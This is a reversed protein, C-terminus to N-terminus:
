LNNRCFEIVNGGALREVVSASYRKDLLELMRDHISSREDFGEPYMGDTGDIDFGFGLSNEGFNELAYDVHRLIDEPTCVLNETLFPPYLNLGIVGGRAVIKAAMDKTLNRPSPCVDRFNSHTALLPYPTLELLDYFARDSMHSVDLIIGMESARRALARGEATLGYDEKDWASASLENGDWALGLVRLGARYLTLLEESDAFLGAGGEISLLTSRRETEIAYNLDHCDAVSVLKLRERESLYVDLLHMTRRRRERPSEEGKPVFLAVFQMQPYDSSFNHKEVLGRSSNVRLISDCHMDCIYM